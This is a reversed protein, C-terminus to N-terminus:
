YYIISCRCNAIQSADAGYSDDKPFDMYYGGVTFPEGIPKITGGVKRHSEREKRDRIDVWRKRTKGSRVAERYDSYNWAMNSENEAMLRSRDMSYYYPDDVHSQTSEIANHSFNLIYSEMYEDTEIVNDIANKYANEFRIRITEWEIERYQQMTFLFALVLLFNDGLKEALDIRKEKEEDSIEMVDFYDSYDESRKMGVVENLEDYDNIDLM